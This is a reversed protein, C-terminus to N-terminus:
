KAPNRAPITQWRVLWYDLTRGLDGIIKAKNFPHVSAKVEGTKCRFYPTGLALIACTMEM